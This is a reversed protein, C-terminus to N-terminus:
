QPKKKKADEEEEKKKREYAEEVMKKIEKASPKNLYGPAAADLVIPDMEATINRSAIFRLERGGYFWYLALQLQSDSGKKLVWCLDNLQGATGGTAMSIDASGGSASQGYAKQVPRSDLVMILLIFIAGAMAGMAFTVGKTM